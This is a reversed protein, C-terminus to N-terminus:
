SRRASAQHAPSQHAPGLRALALRLVTAVGPETGSAESGSPDALTEDVAQAAVRESWGLGILAAQVNAAVTAQGAPRVGTPAGSAVAVKGALSLVILKATKPGIGSVKRFVADDEGQVALAIQNPTLVGLVGLASKPGVGTVGVLLEFVALEEATPFGYLTLSDERVILTTALRAEDGTRVSLATTPTVQLALGIGGVEIVVTSGLASLVPGRVSSIM